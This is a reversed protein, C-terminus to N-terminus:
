TTFLGEPHGAMKEFDTMRMKIVTAPIKAERWAIVAIDGLTVDGFELANYCLGYTEWKNFNRFSNEIAEIDNKNM